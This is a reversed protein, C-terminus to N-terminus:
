RVVHRCDETVVQDSTLITDSIAVGQRVEVREWLVSRTIRVGAEIRCGNGLIAWEGFVVTPHLSVGEGLVPSAGGVLEGQIRMYAHISGIDEWRHGRSLFGRIPLGRRILDRYVEIITCFVGQPLFAFIEPSLVHIGTFALRGEVPRESIDLIRGQPDLAVQSYAPNEQLVLTVLHGRNMHDRTVPGLDIDTLVDANCVVFPGDSLYREANKIGGGTGLLVPERLVEIPLGGQRRGALHAAVQEQLHHANVVIGRIGQGELYAIVHDMAPRNLLPVLAKPRRLTLPRLRTGLGAALLMAKM